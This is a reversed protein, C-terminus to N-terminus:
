KKPISCTFLEQLKQHVSRNRSSEATTIPEHPTQSQKPSAIDAPPPALTSSISLSENKLSNPQAKTSLRSPHCPEMHVSSTESDFFLEEESSQLKKVNMNLLEHIKLYKHRKIFREFWGKSAKFKTNDSWKKANKQILKRTLRKGGNKALEGRLWNVLKEEMKHDVIKRGAGARREIGKKWRILNNSSVDYIKAVQRITM